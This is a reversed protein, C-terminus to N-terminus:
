LCFLRLIFINIFSNIKCKSTPLHEQFNFSVQISRFVKKHFIATWIPINLSTCFCHKCSKQFGYCRIKAENIIIDFGLSPKCKLRLLRDLPFWREAFTNMLTLELKYADTIIFVDLRLMKTNVFSSWFRALHQYLTSADYDSSIYPIIMPRWLSWM